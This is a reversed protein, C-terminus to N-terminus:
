NVTVKFELQQLDNAELHEITWRLFRIDQPQLETNFLTYEPFYDEGNNSVLYVSANKSQSFGVYTTGNPVPNDVNINVADDSGRNEVTIVLILEDGQHVSAAETRQASLNGQEDTVTYEQYITSSIIVEADALANPAYIPITSILLGLLGRKMRKILKM